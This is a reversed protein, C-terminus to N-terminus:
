FLDDQRVLNLSKKIIETAEDVLEPTHVHSIFSRRTGPILVGNDLLHLYFDTEAQSRMGGTDRAS